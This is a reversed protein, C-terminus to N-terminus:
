TVNRRIEEAEERVPGVTPLRDWWWRPTVDEPYIRQYLPRGGDETLKMLLLDTAQLVAIDAATGGEQKPVSSEIADRLQFAGVIDHFGWTTGEDLSRTEAIDSAFKVVRQAWDDVLDLLSVQRSGFNARVDSAKSLAMRMAVYDEM